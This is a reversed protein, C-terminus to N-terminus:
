SLQMLVHSCLGIYRLGNSNKTEPDYAKYGNIKSGIASNEKIRVIQERPKCEPGENQDRVQVTVMARNMTPIRSAVDRIFPAENNVGIELTVQRNEEYDLPKLISSICTLETCLVNSLELLWDCTDTHVPSCLLNVSM